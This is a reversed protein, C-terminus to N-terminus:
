YLINVTKIIIKSRYCYKVIYNNLTVYMGYFILWISFMILLNLINFNYGLLLMSKSAEIPDFAHAYLMTGIDFMFVLIFKPIYYFCDKVLILHMRFIYYLSNM